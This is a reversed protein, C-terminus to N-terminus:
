HRIIYSKINTFLEHVRIRWASYGLKRGADARMDQCHAHKYLIRLEEEDLNPNLFNATNNNSPPLSRLSNM